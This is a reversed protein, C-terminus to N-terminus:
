RNLLQCVGKVADTLNSFVYTSAQRTFIHAHKDGIVSVIPVNFADAWGFEVMSGISVQEAGALYALMCDATRVDNRDRKFVGHETTIPHGEYGNKGLVGEGGLLAFKGRMPSVSTLGHGALLYAAEDRWGGAAKEATLGAIPGCLYVNM